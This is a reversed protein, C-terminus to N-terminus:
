NSGVRLPERGGIHYSAPNTLKVRGVYAARHKDYRVAVLVTDGECMEDLIYDNVSMLVGRVTDSQYERQIPEM